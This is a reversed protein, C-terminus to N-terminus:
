DKGHFAETLTNHFANTSKMMVKRFYSVYYLPKVFGNIKYLGVSFGEGALNMPESAVLDPSSMGFQKDFSATLTRIRSANEDFFMYHEIKSDWLYGRVRIVNANGKKFSEAIEKELSKNHTHDSWNCMATALDDQLGLQSLAEDVSMKIISPAEYEEQILSKGDTISMSNKNAWVMTELFTIKNKEPNGESVEINRLEKDLGVINVKAEAM